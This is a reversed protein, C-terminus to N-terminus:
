DLKELPKSNPCEHTGYFSPAAWHVGNRIVQQVEAQHYIPYTEHGPRFYFIKGFGREWV